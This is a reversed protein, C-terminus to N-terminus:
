KVPILEAKVNRNKIVGRSHIKWKKDTYYCYMQGDRTSQDVYDLVGLDWFWRHTPDKHTNPGNWLPYKIILKGKPKLIRWCENLTEILTLKLHEATSILQIEDFSNDEWPWPVMNLDCAIDIEPRHKVLNHNVAGEVIRNGAGLNLTTM